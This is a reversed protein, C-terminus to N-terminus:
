SCRSRRWIAKWAWSSSSPSPGARPAAGPGCSSTPKSWNRTRSAATARTRGSPSTTRTLEYQSGYYAYPIAKRGPVRGTSRVQHVADHVLDALATLFGPRGGAPVSAKRTNPPGPFRVLAQLLTDLDRYSYDKAVRTLTVTGVSDSGVTKGQMMKWFFGQQGAAVADAQAAQLTDQDSKQIVGLVSSEGGRSEEQIFGWRNVKRPARAPDSGILLDYGRDEGEGQHWRIRAGGVNDKGMWFMLPRIKGAMRYRHEKVVPLAGASPSSSGLVALRVASEQQPTWGPWGFSAAAVLVIAVTGAAVFRPIRLSQPSVMGRNYQLELKALGRM